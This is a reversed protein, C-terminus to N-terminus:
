KMITDPLFSRTFYDAMTFGLLFVLTLLGAAIVVWVLKSSYKVHMFFLVVLVVKVTAIGLAVATNFLDLNISATWLTLGTLAILLAYVGFYTSRPVVPHTFTTM